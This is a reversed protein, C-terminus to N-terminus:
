RPAPKGQASALPITLSVPATAPPFCVKDTCAQYRVSGDITLASGVSRAAARTLTIRQRVEFPRTYVKVIEKLEGFAYDEGPPYIAPDAHVGAPLQLTVSVPIYDSNGPAYVHIGPAPTMALRLTVSRGPAISAADTSFAVTLRSSARPDPRAGFPPEQIAHTVVTLTAVATFPALTRVCRVLYDMLM